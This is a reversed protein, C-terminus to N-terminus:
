CCSAETYWWHSLQICPHISYMYWTNYQRIWSNHQITRYQSTATTAWHVALIETQIRSKCNVNINGIRTFDWSFSFTSEAKVKRVLNLGIKAQVDTSKWVNLFSFSFSFLETPHQCATFTLLWYIFIFAHCLVLIDANDGQPLPTIVWKAAARLV